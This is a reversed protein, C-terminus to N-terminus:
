INEEQIFEIFKSPLFKLLLEQKYYCEEMLNAHSLKNASPICSLLYLVSENEVTGFVVSVLNERQGFRIAM